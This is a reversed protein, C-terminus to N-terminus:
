FGNYFLGVYKQKLATEVDLSKNLGLRPIVLKRNEVEVKMLAQPLPGHYDTPWWIAKCCPRNKLSAACMPCRM